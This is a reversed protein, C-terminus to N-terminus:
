ILLTKGHHKSVIIFKKAMEDRGARSALNSGKVESHHISQEAMASCSDPLLVLSVEDLLFDSEAVVM